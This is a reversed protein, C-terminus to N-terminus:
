KPFASFGVDVGSDGGVDICKVAFTNPGGRILAAQEQDLVVDRYGGYPLSVGERQYIKVGNLYVTLDDDHAVRLVYVREPLPDPIEVSTRMWIAPTSWLTNRPITPMGASCFGTKGVSWGETNFQRANWGPGPDVTTYLWTAPQNQEATHLLVVKQAMKEPISKGPGFLARHARNEVLCRTLENDSWDWLRHTTGDFDPAVDQWSSPYVFAGLIQVGISIAILALSLVFVPKCRTKAWHLVMGLVVALLPIVETWYRPGFCLGAWWASFTSILLAHAGLTALLWPLLTARRLQFVAFPLYAFVVLAWPTFVFLGRSPSLLTGQLGEYWPTGFTAADFTSYYGAAAGLYARNYGILALGIAAAPLLFWILGRPHRITVWFATVVAFALDIPRCCVLMAATVGAAFFRWRSPNEPWLLLILWMLMLAAPGHQWLSQSATSWLSSGLAAATAALWAVRGLGLKRLVALLALAALTTIAAASRKAITDFWDPESTEWGPHTRDLVLMQPITFPVALLAPGVPYRSVYHGDVLALYYPMTPHPWWKLVDRQYRDLYFGDGRVLACSLYKAPVSDGSWIERGNALYIAFVGACWVFAMGTTRWNWPAPSSSIEERVDSSM